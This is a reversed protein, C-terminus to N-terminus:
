NFSFRRLNMFLTTFVFLIFINYFLFHARRLTSSM